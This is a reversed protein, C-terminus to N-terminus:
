PLVIQRPTLGPSTTGDGFQAWANSGWAWLTGDTKIGFVHDGQAYLKRFGTGIRVPATTGPTTTGDGLQGYANTSWGWASGDKKFGFGINSAGSATAEDGQLSAFNPDLAM